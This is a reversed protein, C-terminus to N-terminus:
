TGLAPAKLINSTTSSKPRIWRQFAVPLPWYNATSFALLLQGSLELVATATRTVGIKSRNTQQCRHNSFGGRLVMTDITGVFSNEAEAAKENWEVAAAEIPEMIARVVYTGGAKKIESLKIPQKASVPQSDLSVARRLCEDTVDVRFYTTQRSRSYSCPGVFTDRVDSNEVNMNTTKTIVVADQLEETGEEIEADRKIPQCRRHWVKM